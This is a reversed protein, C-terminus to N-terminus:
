RQHHPTSRCAHRRHARAAAFRERQPEATLPRGDAYLCDFFFPTLPLESEFAISMWGGGLGACRKRFRCRRETASCRWCKAMSFSSAHGAVAQGGRRGRAGRGDCRAARALVRAGRRRVQAGPHARRRAEARVGGRGFAELRTRWAKRPRRLCRSSRVSYSSPTNEIARVSRRCAGRVGREGLDGCMMAAQRVAAAPVGAAKAVAEALVGEQAGQRLEGSLLRVLFDQETSTARSFSIPRAAAGAVRTAGAGSISAIRGFTDHRRALEPHIADGAGRRAGAVRRVLRHRHARASARGVSVRGRHSNGRSAARKLLEALKGIKDLRGRAGAVANSM